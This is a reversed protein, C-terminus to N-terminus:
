FCPGSSIMDMGCVWVMFLDILVLLPSSPRNPRVLVAAGVALDLDSDLTHSLSIDFSQHLLEKVFPMRAGGGM